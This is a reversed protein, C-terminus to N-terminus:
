RRPFDRLLRNEIEGMLVNAVREVIQSLVDASNMFDKVEIPRELILSERERRAFYSFANYSTKKGAGFKGELCFIANKKSLPLIFEIYQEEKKVFLNEYEKKVTLPRPNFTDASLGWKEYGLMMKM